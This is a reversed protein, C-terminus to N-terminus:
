CDDGTNNTMQALNQNVWQKHGRPHVFIPSQLSDLKILDMNQSGLFLGFVGCIKSSDNAADIRATITMIQHNVIRGAIM